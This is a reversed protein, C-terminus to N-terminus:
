CQYPRQIKAYIYKIDIEHVKENHLKFLDANEFFHSEM